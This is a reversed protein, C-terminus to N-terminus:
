HKVEAPKAAPVAPAPTGAAAPAAAAVPADVKVAAPATPYFAKKAQAEQLFLDMAREVTLRVGTRDKNTYGSQHLIKAANAESVKYDQAIPAMQFRYQESELAWGYYSIVFIFCLLLTVLIGAAFVAVPAAQPDQRNYGVEDKIIVDDSM